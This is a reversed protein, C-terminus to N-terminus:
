KLMCLLMPRAYVATCCLRCAVHSNCSAAPSQPVMHGCSNGRCALHRHASGKTGYREMSHEQVAGFAAGMLFPHWGGSLIYALPAHYHRSIHSCLATPHICRCASRYQWFNARNSVPESGHECEDPVHSAELAAAVGAHVSMSEHNSSGQAVVRPQAGRM